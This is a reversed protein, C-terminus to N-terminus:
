LDRGPGDVGAVSTRRRVRLGVSLACLGALAGYGVFAWRVGLLQVVGGLGLGGFPLLGGWCIFYVSLVRGRHADDIVYQLVTNLSSMISLTLGSGLVVLAALVPFSPVVGLAAVVAGLLVLQAVPGALSTHPGRRAGRWAVTLGGLMAGVGTLTALTAFAAEGDDAVRAALLPLQAQYASGFISTAAVLCLAALAPPRQRVHAIGTALQRWVTERAAARRPTPPVLALLRRAVAAALV